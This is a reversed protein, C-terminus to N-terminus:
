IPRSLSGVTTFVSGLVYGTCFTRSREYRANCSWSLCPIRAFLFARRAIAQAVFRLCIRWSATKPSPLTTPGTGSPGYAVLGTEDTQGVVFSLNALIYRFFAPLDLPKVNSAIVDVSRSEVLAAWATAICLSNALTPMLIFM